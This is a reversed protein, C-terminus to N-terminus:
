LVAGLATTTPVLCAHAYRNASSNVSKSGTEKKKGGPLLHPLKAKRAEKHPKSRTSRKTVERSWDEKVKTERDQSKTKSGAFTVNSHDFDSASGKRSTNARPPLPAQGTRTLAVSSRSWSRDLEVVPFPLYKGFLRLRPSQGCCRSKQRGPLGLFYLPSTFGRPTFRPHM